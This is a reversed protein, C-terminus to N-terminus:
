ELVETAQLLVPQPITVGLTRARQRNVILEFRTSQQVPM